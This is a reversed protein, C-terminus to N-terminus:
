RINFKKAIKKTEALHHEFGPLVKLVLAKLEDNQIAPLLTNKIAGIVGAHFAIEHRIYARDFAEGEFTDLYALDEALSAVAGDHNPPTGLMNFKKALNRGMQQVATHDTITMKALNKVEKSKGKKWGLRGTSIDAMNAQDFIAFITEDNLGSGAQAVPALFVLASLMLLGSTYTKLTYKM